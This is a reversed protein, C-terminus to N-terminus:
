RGSEPGNITGGDGEPRVAGDRRYTGGTTAKFPLLRVVEVGSEAGDGERACLGGHRMRLYSSSFFSLPLLCV